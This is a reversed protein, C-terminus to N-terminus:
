PKLTNRHHLYQFSNKHSRARSNFPNFLLPFVLTSNTVSLVCFHYNQYSSSDSDWNSYGAMELWRLVAVAHSILQLLGANRWPKLFSTGHHSFPVCGGSNINKNKFGDTWTDSSIWTHQIPPASPFTWLATDFGAPFHRLCSVFWWFSRAASCGVSSGPHLLVSHMMHQWPTSIQTGDAPKTSKEIPNLGFYLLAITLSAPSSLSSIITQTNLCLVPLWNLTWGQTRTIWPTKQAWDVVQSHERETRHIM